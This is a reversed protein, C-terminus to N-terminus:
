SPDELAEGLHQRGAEMCEHVRLRLEGLERLPLEAYRHRPAFRPQVRRNRWQDLVARAKWPKDELEHTFALLLHLKEDDPLREVAQELLTRAETSQGRDILRRCLEQYAVSRVWGDARETLVRLHQESKRTQGLRALNIALRLRAAHQEPQLELLEEMLNAASEYRGQREEVSALTILVAPERSELRMCHGLVEEAIESMGLRQADLAVTALMAVGTDPDGGQEIFTEILMITTRRCHSSLLFSGERWLMKHAERYVEIVPILSDPQSRTLRRIERREARSIKITAKAEGELADTLAAGLKEAAVHSRGESALEMVEVFRARFQKWRSLSEQDDDAEALAEAPGPAASAATATDPDLPALIGGGTWAFSGSTRGVLTVPTALSAAEGSAPRLRLRYDGPDHGGPPLVVTLLELGSRGVPDRQEVQVARSSRSGDPHEWEAELTADAPLNRALVQFVTEQSAPLLPAAAPEMVSLGWGPGQDLRLVTWSDPPNGVMPPMLAISEDLSPVSLRIVALGMKPSRHDRVLLRITYEGPDLAMSWIAKVGAPLAQTDDFRLEIEGGPQGSMMLAAVEAPVGPIDVM